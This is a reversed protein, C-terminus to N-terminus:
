TSDTAIVNVSRTPTLRTYRPRCQGVSTRAPHHRPAAHAITQQITAAHSCPLPLTSFFILQARRHRYAVHQERSINAFDDRGDLVGLFLLVTRFLRVVTLPGASGSVEPAPSRTASFAAPVCSTAEANGNLGLLDASYSVSRISAGGSPAEMLGTSGITPALVTVSSFLESLTPLPLGFM